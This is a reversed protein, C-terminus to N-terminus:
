CCNTECYGAGCGGEPRGTSCQVGTMGYKVHTSQPETVLGPSCICVSEDQVAYSADSTSEIYVTLTDGKKLQVAGTVGMTYYNGHVDGDIAHLGENLAPKANMAINIRFYQVNARDLRINASAIYYGDAPATFSQVRKRWQSLCEM